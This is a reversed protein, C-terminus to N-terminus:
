ELNIPFTGISDSTDGDTFIVPFRDGFGWTTEEYTFYYTNQDIANARVLAAYQSTTLTVMNSAGTAGGGTSGDGNQSGITIQAPDSSSFEMNLPNYVDKKLVYKQDIITQLALLANSVDKALAYSGRKQFTADINLRIAELTDYEVYDGKKQYTSEVADADAYNGVPQYTSSADSKTLYTDQVQSSTLYDSLDVQPTRQGSAIWEGNRYRYEVYVADGDVEEEKLYVKNQNINPEEPLEDVIIWMNTDITSSIVNGTISIGDGATLKDQKTDLQALTPVSDKDAKSNLDTRKAYQDLASQEIKDALARTIIRNEVPNSSAMSLATDVKINSTTPQIIVAQGTGGSEDTGWEGQKPNYVESRRVFTENVYETTAYDGKLQYNNEVFSILAYDKLKSNFYAEYDVNPIAVGIATWVGDIVRWQEHVYQGNVRRELIYIKNLNADEESPLDTVIQYISGDITSSIVDNAINIGYGASLINQKKNIEERLLNIAKGLTTELAFKESITEGNVDTFTITGNNINISFILKDNGNKFELSQSNISSTYPGDCVYEKGHAWICPKDQIFVISEKSIEANDRATEFAKYTQFNLFRRKIM